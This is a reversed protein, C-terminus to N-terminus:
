QPLAEQLVESQSGSASETNSKETSSETGIVIKERLTQHFKKLTDFENGAVKYRELLKQVEDAKDLNNQLLRLGYLAVLGRINRPELGLALRLKANAAGFRRSNVDRRASDILAPVHTSNMLLTQRLFDKAESEDGSLAHVTSLAYLADASRPYLKLSKELMQKAGAYDEENRLLVASNVLSKVSNQSISNQWAYLTRQNEWAQQYVYSWYLSFACILFFLGKKIFHVPILSLCYVILLCVGVSPTYTLRDAFITGITFIVNSTVLFSLFFWSLGFALPSDTDNVYTYLAYVLLFLIVLASPISGQISQVNLVAFSYDPQLPYPLVTLLLYNFLLSLANWFKESFSLHALPNDVFDISLSSTVEGLVLIRVAICVLLLLLSIPIFKKLMQLHDSEYGWFFLYLLPLFVLGSEKSLFSLLLFLFVFVFQTRQAALISLLGFTLSLIEARGVIAAVVETHIPHIAFLIATCLSLSKFRSRYFLVFILLANFGHLVCNFFHYHWASKGFLMTELWFSFFTVPRFLNGPFVPESFIAYLGQIDLFLPNNLIHIRDDLVFESFSATPIFVILGVLFVAFAKLPFREITNLM